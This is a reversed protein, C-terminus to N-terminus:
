FQSLHLQVRLQITFVIYSMYCCLRELLGVCHVVYMRNEPVHGAVVVSVLRMRVCCAICLVRLGRFM